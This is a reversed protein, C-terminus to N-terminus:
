RIFHLILFLLLLFLGLLLSSLQAFLGLRLAGGNLGDLLPLLVFDSTLSLLKFSLPKGKQLSLSLCLGLLLEFNRFPPLLLFREGLTELELGQALELGQKVWFHKCRM